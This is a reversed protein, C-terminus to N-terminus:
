LPQDGKPSEILFEIVAGAVMVFEIRRVTLMGCLLVAIVPTDHLWSHFAEFRVPYPRPLAPITQREWTNGNGDTFKVQDVTKYPHQTDSPNHHKGLYPHAM